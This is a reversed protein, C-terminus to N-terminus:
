LTKVTKPHRGMIRLGAEFAKIAEFIVARNYNDFYIEICTLVYIERTKFKTFLNIVLGADPDFGAEIILPRTPYERNHEFVADVFEHIITGCDGNYLKNLKKITSKINFEDILIHEM